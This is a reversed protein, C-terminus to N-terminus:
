RNYMMLNKIEDVYTLKKWFKTSIFPRFCGFLLKLWRSPRVIYLEKLNKKYKRNFITYATKLWNFSPIQHSDLSGHIYILIYSSSVIPDLLQILYLLLSDLNINYRRLKDALFLVIPRNFADVGAVSCVGTYSVSSFDKNKAQLLYREYEIDSAEKISSVKNNAPIEENILLEEIQTSM